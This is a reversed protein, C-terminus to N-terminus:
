DYHQKQKILENSPDISKFHIAEAIDPLEIQENGHLDAITRAVKLIKDMGRHSFQLREWGRQLFKKAHNDPVCYQQVLEHSLQANCNMKTHGVLRHSQIERAKIVRARIVSSAEDGPRPNFLEEAETMETKVCLDFRDLIPGSLKRHHWWLARKSCTCKKVPHHRYGCSCPNMAAVLMFGAPYEITIGSRGINIKKEELPIRLAELVSTKCETFEDMFLVGNHAYTIEGPSAQAGGGVLGATSITHHVERFPRHKILQQIRSVNLSHIKTTEIIEKGTMPPLISPLCKVLMTKGTGPFGNILTHHGGAAAIELARKTNEQGVVNRFDQGTTLQNTILSTSIFPSISIDSSIFEIAERLHHVPFIKAGPILSAEQANIAPILLGHLHDRIILESRALAGNISNVSGDLSLEGAICYQNLKGVDNIQGTALLIGLAIPLDYASGYKRITAPSMHVLLKTRPMTYGANELAIAIRSLSEKISEDALGTVQYGLGKTVSVEITVPLAHIGIVASSNIKALM